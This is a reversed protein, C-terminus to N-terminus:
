LNSDDGVEVPVFGAADFLQAFSARRDGSQFWINEGRIEVLKTKALTISGGPAKVVLNGPTEIVMDGENVALSNAPSTQKRNLVVGLWLGSTKERDLWLCLLMTGSPPLPPDDGVHDVVRWLLPSIIAQDDEFYLVRVRRLDELGEAFDYNKVAGLFLPNFSDVQMTAAKVLAAITPSPM